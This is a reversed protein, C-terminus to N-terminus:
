DGNISALIGRIQQVLAHRSGTALEHRACVSELTSLKDKGDGDTLTLLVALSAATHLVKENTADLLSSEVVLAEHQFKVADEFDGQQARLVALNSMAAATSLSAQGSVRLDTTLKEEAFSAAEEIRGRSALTLALQNLCELRADDDFHAETGYIELARRFCTEALGLDSEVQAVRALQIARKAAETSVAGFESEAARLLEEAIPRAEAYEGCASLMASLVHMVDLVEKDAAGRGARLVAYIERFYTICGRYDNRAALMNGLRFLVAVTLEHQPGAVKRGIPLAQGSIREAEDLRGQREFLEGIRVLTSFTDLHDRGPVKEQVSLARLYFGEARSYDTPVFLNGLNHLIKGVIPTKAGGTAVAQELASQYLQIARDNDGREAVTNALNNQAVAIEGASLGLQKRLISLSKVYLGETEEFAGRDYLVLALGNLAAAFLM